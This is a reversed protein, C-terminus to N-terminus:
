PNRDIGIGTGIKPTKADTKAMLLTVRRPTFTIVNVSQDDLNKECNEYNLRGLDNVLTVSM